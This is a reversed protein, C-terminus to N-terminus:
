PKVSSVSTLVGKVGTKVEGPTLIGMVGSLALAALIVGERLPIATWWPKGTDPKAKDAKLSAIDAAHATLDAKHLALEKDLEHHVESGHELRQAIWELVRDQRDLRDIVIQQHASSQGVFLAIPDLGIGSPQGHWGNMQQM